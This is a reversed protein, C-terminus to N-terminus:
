SVSPTLPFAQSGPLLHFANGLGPGTVLSQCVCVGLSSLDSAM